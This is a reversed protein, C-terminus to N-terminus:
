CCVFILDTMPKSTNEDVDVKQLQEAVNEEAPTLKEAEAERNDFERLGTLRALLSSIYDAVTAETEAGKTESPADAETQSDTVGSADPGTSVDAEASADSTLKAEINSSSAQGTTTLLLVSFENTTDENGFTFSTQYLVILSCMFYFKLNMTMEVRNPTTLKSKYHCDIQINGQNSFTSFILLVM